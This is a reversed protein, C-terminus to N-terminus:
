KYWVRDLDLNTVSHPIADFFVKTQGEPVLGLGKRLVLEVWDPDSQSNVQLSLDAHRALAQEQDRQLQERHATLRMFEDNRTQSSMEYLTLLSLFWLVVWWWQVFMQELRKIRAIGGGNVFKSKTIKPRSSFDTRM